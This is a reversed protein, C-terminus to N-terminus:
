LAHSGGRYGTRDSLFHPNFQLAADHLAFLMDQEPSIVGDSM